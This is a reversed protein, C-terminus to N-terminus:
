NELAATGCRLCRYGTPPTYGCHPCPALVEAVTVGFVKAIWDPSPPIRQNHEWRSIESKDIGFLVAVDAIGLGRELRLRRLARGRDPEGPPLAWEYKPRKSM